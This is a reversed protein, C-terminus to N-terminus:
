QSPGRHTLTYSAPDYVREGIVYRDRLILEGRVQYRRLLEVLIDDDCNPLSDNSNMASRRYCPRYTIGYAQRSGFYKGGLFKPSAAESALGGVAFVMMTPM